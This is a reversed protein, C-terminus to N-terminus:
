PNFSDDTMHFYDAATRAKTYEVEKNNANAHEEAAEQESLFATFFLQMPNSDTEGYILRTQEGEDIIKKIIAHKLINVFYLHVSIGCFSVDQERYFTILLEKGVELAAGHNSILNVSNNETVNIQGDFHLPIKQVLLLYLENVKAMEDISAEIDTPKIVRQLVKELACLQMYFRYTFRLAKKIGQLHEADASSEVDKSPMFHELLGIAICYSDALQSVSQAREKQIKANYTREGTNSFTFEQSIISEKNTRLITGKSFTFCELSVNKMGKPTTIDFARTESSPGVMFGELNDEFLFPMKRSTSSDYAVIGNVGEVNVPHGEDLALHIAKEFQAEAETNQFLLKIEPLPPNTSFIDKLRNRGM